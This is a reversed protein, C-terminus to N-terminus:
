RRRRWLLHACRARARALARTRAPARAPPRAQAPRPLTDVPQKAMADLQALLVSVPPSQSWGLLQVLWGIGDAETIALRIRVQNPHLNPNPNPHLNPDAETIALRIRVNDALSLLASAAEEQAEAGQNGNLLAVIKPIAGEAAIAAQTAEHEHALRSLAM